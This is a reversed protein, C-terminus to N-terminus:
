LLLFYIKPSSRASCAPNVLTLLPGLNL